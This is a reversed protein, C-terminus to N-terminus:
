RGETRDAIKRERGNSQTYSGRKQRGAQRHVKTDATTFGPQNDAQRM